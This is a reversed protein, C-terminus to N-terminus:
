LELLAHISANFGLTLMLLTLHLLSQYFHKLLTGVEKGTVLLGNIQLFNDARLVNVEVRRECIHELERHFLLCSVIAGFIICPSLACAIGLALALYEFFAQLRM